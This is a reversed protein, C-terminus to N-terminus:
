DLAESIDASSKIARLKFRVIRAKPVPWCHDLVFKMAQFDGGKAQRIMKELIEACDKEAIQDLASAIRSRYGPPRGPGGANGPTFQGNGNRSKPRYREM